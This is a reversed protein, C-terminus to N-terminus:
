GESADGNSVWNDVVVPNERYDIRTNSVDVLKGNAFYLFKIYQDRVKNWDDDHYAEIKWEEISVGQMMSQSLSIKNGKEFTGLAEDRSMGVRLKQGSAEIRQLDSRSVKAKDSACGTIAAAAIVIGLAIRSASTM